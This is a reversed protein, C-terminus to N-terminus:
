FNKELELPCTEVGKGEKKLSIKEGGRGWLPSLFSDEKEGKGDRTLRDVWSYEEEGGIEKEGGGRKKKHDLVCLSESKKEGKV